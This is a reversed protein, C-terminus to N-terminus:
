RAKDEESCFSSRNSSAESAPCSSTRAYRIVASAKFPGKLTLSNRGFQSGRSDESRLNTLVNSSGPSQARPWQSQKRRTPTTPAGSLTAWDEELSRRIAPMEESTISRRNAIVGLSVKTSGRMYASFETKLTGVEVAMKQIDYLLRVVDISKAQGKVRKVGGLFEDCSMRGDGDDLMTFLDELENVDLELASLYTKVREQSVVAEFEDWTLWGDGSQDAENFFARLKEIYVVNAREKDAIMIDDDNAAVKFTEHLFVGTIVSLMAFGVTCKYLLFFLAYWENVNDSVLRCAPAWNALTVEFMTVLARTFSGFYSYVRLRTERSAGNEDLIYGELLQSLLMAAAIQGLLILALSWFLAGKSGMLAKLMLTLPAFQHVSRVLRLIRLLRFMRLLRFFLPSLTGIRINVMQEVVWFGVLLADFWNWWHLLFQLRLAVIKILLEVCFMIGFAMELVELVGEAGPWIMIAADKSEPFGIVYGSQLGAYQVRVAMVMTNLAIASTFVAEFLPGNVHYAWTGDDHDGPDMTLRGMTSKKVMPEDSHTGAAESVLQSTQIGLDEVPVSGQSAAEEDVRDLGVSSVCISREPMGAQLPGTPQKSSVKEKGNPLSSNNASASTEDRLYEPPVSGLTDMSFFGLVEDGKALPSLAGCPCPPPERQQSKCAAVVDGLQAELKAILSDHRRELLEHVATRESFFQARLSCCLSRCLDGPKAMDLELRTLSIGSSHVPSFNGRDDASYVEEEDLATWPGGGGCGGVRRVGSGEWHPARGEYVSERHGYERAPDDIPSSSAGHM